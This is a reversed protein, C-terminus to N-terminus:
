TYMYLIQSSRHRVSKGTLRVRERSSRKLHRHPTDLVKELVAVHREEDRDAGALGFVGAEAEGGRPGHGGHRQDVGVM